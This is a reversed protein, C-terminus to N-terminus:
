SLNIYLVLLRPIRLWGARFLSEWFKFGSLSVFFSSSLCSSNGARATESGAPPAKREAGAPSLFCRNFFFSLFHKTLVSLNSVQYKIGLGSGLGHVAFCVVLDFAQHMKVM